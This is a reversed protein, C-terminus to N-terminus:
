RLSHIKNNQQEAGRVNTTPCHWQEIFLHKRSDYRLICHYIGHTFYVRIRSKQGERKSQEFFGFVYGVDVM